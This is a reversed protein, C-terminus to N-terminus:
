KKRKKRAAPPIPPRSTSPPYNKGGKVTKGETLLPFDPKSNKVVESLADVVVQEMTKGVKNAYAELKKFLDNDLDIEVDVYKKMKEKKM